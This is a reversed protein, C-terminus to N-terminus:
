SSIGLMNSKLIYSSISYNVWIILILSNNNVWWILHARVSSVEKSILYSFLYILLFKQISQDVIWNVTNYIDCYTIIFVTFTNIINNNSYGQQLLFWLQFSISGRHTGTRHYAWVVRHSRMCDKDSHTLILQSLLIRIIIVVISPWVFFM